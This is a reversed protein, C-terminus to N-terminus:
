PRSSVMGMLMGIGRWFARVFSLAAFSVHRCKGTQRVIRLTMPVQALLLALTLGAPLWGLQAVAVLPLTVLILVALPPQVFDWWGSYSDGAMREPHRRYLMVRWYGQERQKALYGRLEIPHFHGVRSDIEFRLRYGAKRVRYALEADHAWRCSADFGGVEELVRRRYLVHYSALVSVESSMRRHRAVIEEHILTALLSDPQMNTYSGGAAAVEPAGMHPLLLRLANPEAVCDADVFWVLPTAAAQWGLNRAAAAGQGSGTVIRVPRQGAIDATRDTSGDDVLIIEALQGTTEQGTGLLEAVADLCAGITAEANRAAIVLTVGTM